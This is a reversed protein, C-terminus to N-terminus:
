PSSDRSNSKRSERGPSGTAARRLKLLTEAIDNRFPSIRRAQEVDALGASQNGSQFRALGLLLWDESARRLTTLTELPTIAERFRSRQLLVDGAVFLANVRGGSSLKAAGLARQAATQAQLLDGAEWSVRALAAAVEGDEPTEQMLQLLERLARSRFEASLEPTSARASYEACALAHSRRLEQPSVDSMVGFPVLEARSADGAAAAPQQEHRGIRHHTFAIHPIETSVQPMHCSVCNDAPRVSARSEAAASCAHETHCGLCARRYEQLQEDRSREVAHGAHCTTCTLTESDQWCRSATMQDSHGVVKMEGGANQLFWDIRTDTLLNGPRFDAATRGTRLVTADGRLHCQACVADQRDRSLKQPNIIPDTAVRAASEESAGKHHTRHFDIHTAGPGHCRECGIALEAIALRHFAGDVEEIGGCHCILCGADVPREFGQHHEHDYGPSLSWRGTSAYWTVPSETLFGDFLTLYTRSHRGSGVLYELRAEVTPGGVMGTEEHWLETGRHESRYERRSAPHAFAGDAPEKGAVVQSMARSHATALWTSHQSQHCELCTATGATLDAAATETGSASNVPQPAPEDHRHLWVTIGPILLAAALIWVGRTRM